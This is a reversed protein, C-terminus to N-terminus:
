GIVPQASSISPSGSVTIPADAADIGREILRRKGQYLMAANALELAPDSHPGRQHPHHISDAGDILKETSM